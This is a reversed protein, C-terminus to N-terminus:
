FAPNFMFRGCLVPYGFDDTDAIWSTRNLVPWRCSHVMEDGPGFDIGEFTSFESYPSVGHASLGIVHDAGRVQYAVGPPPEHVLSYHAGLHLDPASGLLVTNM